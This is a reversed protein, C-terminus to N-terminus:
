SVTQESKGYTLSKSNRTCTPLSNSVDYGVIKNSYSDTVLALYQPNEQDGIYTIDSVRVQEPRDIMM